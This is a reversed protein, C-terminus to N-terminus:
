RTNRPVLEEYYRVGPLEKGERMLTRILAENPLLLDPSHKFLLGKDTVEFKKMRVFEVSGSDSAVAQAPKEIEALKRSATEASLNGRGPAVRDAIRAAAAQALVTAATQYATMKKRIITTAEDITDKIPKWRANEAKLAQNLPKTVKEREEEIQDHRQNLQSLMETAAAMEKPSVIELALAKAVIPKVEKQIVILQKSQTETM